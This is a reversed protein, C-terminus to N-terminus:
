ASTLPLARKREMLWVAGDSTERVERVFVFGAKEYARIAARNQPDPDIFCTTIRPEAFVIEDVFRAIMPAGLGRHLCDPEGIFVDCNAADFDDIGLERAYWAYDGYRMWQLHGIPREGDLVLYPRIPEVGDIYEGYERAVEEFIAGAGWWEAVHPLCLWRHMLPLDARLLPRFRISM